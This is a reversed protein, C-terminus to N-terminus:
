HFKNLSDSLLNGKFNLVTFAPNTNALMVVSKSFYGQLGKKSEFNAIILGSDNQLIPKRPYEAITCVCSSSVSDIILPTSSINKVYYKIKKVEGITVNGLNVDTNTISIIAKQTNSKVFQKDSSSDCSILTLLYIIFYSTIKRM